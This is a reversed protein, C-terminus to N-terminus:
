ALTRAWRSYPVPRKGPAAVVHLEPEVGARTCCTGYARPYNGETGYCALLERGRRVPRTTWFELAHRPLNWVWMLNPRQRRSPENVRPALASRCPGRLGSATGPDLVWGSKPLGDRGPAYFDVAYTGTSKGSRVRREYERASFLPGPYTAVRTMAPLDEDAVVGLGKGRVRALM